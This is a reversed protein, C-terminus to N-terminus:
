DKNQEYDKRREKAKEIETLPTKQTKKTFASLIVIWSEHMYAYLARWQGQFKVRVEFLNTSGSLKKGFPEELKGDEELIEFLAQFKLQVVRPFKKLEKEARKDVFVTKNVNM